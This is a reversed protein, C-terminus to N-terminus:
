LGRIKTPVPAGARMTVSCEVPVDQRSKIHERLAKGAALWAEIKPLLAADKEAMGALFQEETISIGSQRYRVETLVVLGHAFDKFEDRSFKSSTSM